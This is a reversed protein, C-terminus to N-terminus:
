KRAVPLKVDVTTRAQGPEVVVAVRPGEYYQRLRLARAAAALLLAAAVLTAALLWGPLMSSNAVAIWILAATALFCM